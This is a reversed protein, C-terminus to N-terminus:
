LIQPADHPEPEGDQAAAAAPAVPADVVDVDVDGGVAVHLGDVVPAPIVEDVVPAPEPVVAGAGVEDGDGDGDAAWGDGRGRGGHGRRRNRGRESAPVENCAHILRDAHARNHTQTRCGKGYWCKDRNDVLGVREREDIWWDIFKERIRVRFCSMCTTHDQNPLTARIRSAVDSNSLGNSTMYDLFMRYEIGDNPINTGTFAYQPNFSDDGVMWDDVSDLLPGGNYLCNFRRSCWMVSCDKCSFIEMGKPLVVECGRCRGHAEVASMFAESFVSDENRIPVPCVYEDAYGGAPDCFVCPQVRPNMFINLNRRRAANIDGDDDDDGDDVEEENDSYGEAPVGIEVKQGAKYLADLATREDAPRAKTPHLALFIELLSNSRHDDKISTIPARCTPCNGSRQLWPVLCSGCFTHLCAIATVPTYLVDTCIPCSLAKELSDDMPSEEGEKEKKGKGGGVDEAGEEKKEGDGKGIGSGSTRSAKARRILDAIAGGDPDSSAGRKLSARTVPPSNPIPQSQQLPSQPQAQPQAEETSSGAEVGSTFTNTSTLTTTPDEDVGTAITSGSQSM